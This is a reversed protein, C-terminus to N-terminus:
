KVAVQNDIEAMAEDLVEVFTERLDNLFDVDTVTEFGKCRYYMKVEIANGILGQTRLFAQYWQSYWQHIGPFTLAHKPISLLSERANRLEDLSRQKLGNM